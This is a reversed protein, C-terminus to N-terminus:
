HIKEIIKNFNLKNILQDDLRYLITNGIKLKSEKIFGYSKEIENFDVSDIKLTFGKSLYFGKFLTDKRVVYVNENMKRFINKSEELESRHQGQILKLNGDNNKLVTQSFLPLAIDLEMPYESDPSIYEDVISSELISNEDFRGLEGVNYLMLVGKKVPPIGTDYKYKIQHLRLTVSVEFKKSLSDILSFYSSKSHESWDCDLQLKNFKKKFHSMSIQDVLSSIKKHMDEEFSVSNAIFVVPVIEYDSFGTGIENIVYTPYPESYYDEYTQNIVDFYHLFITTTNALDLIKKTKDSFNANQGWEYFNVINNDNKTEHTEKKCSISLMICIIFLGYNYIMTKYSIYSQSFFMKKAKIKQDSIKLNM